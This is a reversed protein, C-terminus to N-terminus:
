KRGAGLLRRRLRGANRYKTQAAPAPPGAAKVSDEVFEGSRTDFRKGDRIIFRNPHTDSKFKSSWHPVDDDPVASPVVGARFAARYDYEPVDQQPEEGYKAKMARRWYVVSPHTNWWEQFAAEDQPQGGGSVNRYKAM